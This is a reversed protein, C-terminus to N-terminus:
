DNVGPDQIGNLTSVGGDVRIIDPLNIQGCFLSHHLLIQTFYNLLQVIINIPNPPHLSHTQARTHTCTRDWM